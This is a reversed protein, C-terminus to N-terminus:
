LRGVHDRGLRALFDAWPLLGRKGVLDRLQVALSLFAALFVLGLGTRFVVLVRGRDTVLRGSGGLVSEHDGGTNARARAVMRPSIAPRRSLRRGSGIKAQLPADSYYCTGREWRGSM